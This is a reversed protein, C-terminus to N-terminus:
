APGCIGEHFVGSPLALADCVPTRGDPRCGACQWYSAGACAPAVTSRAPVCVPPASTYREPHPMQARCWANAAPDYPFDPRAPNVDANGDCNEDLGNCTEVAGPHAEARADDCDNGGCGAANSRYGDRDRDCPYGADVPVDGATDAGVDRGSDVPVDTAAEPATDQASGTDTAVDPAGSDEAAAGTDEPADQATDPRADEPAFPTSSSSCAVLLTLALALRLTM